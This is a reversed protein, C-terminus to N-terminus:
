LAGRTAVRGVVVEKEGELTLVKGGEIKYTIGKGEIEARTVGVRRPILTLVDRGLTRVEAGAAREYLYRLANIVVGVGSGYLMGTMFEPNWNKAIAVISGVLTGVTCTNQCILKGATREKLATDAAAAGLLCLGFTAVGLGEPWLKETVRTGVFAEM